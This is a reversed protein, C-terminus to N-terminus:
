CRRPARATWPIGSTHHLLQKVTLDYKEGYYNVYFWPFFKSVPDALSILKKKELQLIALGTFTKSSSALEFLTHPTVPIKKKLHAYGFGKIIDEKGKRAVVICVGPIKGKKMIKKIIKEAQNDIEDIQEPM